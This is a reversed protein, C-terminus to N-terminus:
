QESQIISITSAPAIEIGQETLATELARIGADLAENYGVQEMDAWYQAVLQLYADGLQRFTIEPAPDTALGQIQHIAEEAALRAQNLNTGYAVPVSIELRRVPARSYNIIPSSYVDANPITVYLGDVARIDTTRLEIAEVTGTFGSVQITDGIDFPEQLMLLLGAIFNKAVDQLAFGLTFGAIGLGALLSTVNPVVQETALVAGVILIGWRILRQLTTQLTADAKRRRAAAAAVRGLWTSVIIAILLILAALGIRYLLDPFQNILDQLQQTLPPM